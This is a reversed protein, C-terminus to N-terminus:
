LRGSKISKRYANFSARIEKHAAFFDTLIKINEVTDANIDHEILETQRLVDEEAGLFGLFDEIIRHRELLFEGVERGVQSLIILGYKEYNLLGLEGLKQVMKSASSAKVNLLEALQNIRLYGDQLSNRCIMELYDEMSPTLKRKHQELLQYGRVTRFKDKEM